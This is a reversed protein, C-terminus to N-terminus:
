YELDGGPVSSIEKEGHFNAVQHELIFGDCEVIEKKQGNNLFNQGLNGYEKLLCKTQKLTVISVRISKKNKLFHLFM